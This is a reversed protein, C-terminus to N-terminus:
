PIADVTIDAMAPGGGDVTVLVGVGRTVGAAQFGGGRFGGGHFGGGFAAAPAVSVTTIAAAAIVFGIAATKMNFKRM